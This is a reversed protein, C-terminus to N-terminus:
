GLFGVFNKINQIVEVPSLESADIIFADDAAKLPASARLIDREDRNKLLSLVDSMNCDKGELLLQNYRRKARVEVNATIFIKLDAKPAVITGIDRGEMIIRSTNKILSKLYHGLNDRV